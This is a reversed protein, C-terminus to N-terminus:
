HKSQVLNMNSSNVASMLGFPASQNTQKEQIPQTLSTQWISRSKFFDLLQRPTHQELFSCNNKAGEAIGLNLADPYHKKVSAIEKEL